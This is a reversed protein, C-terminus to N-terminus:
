KLFLIDCFNTQSTVFQFLKQLHKRSIKLEPKGEFLFDPTLLITEELLINTLWSTVDFSVVCKNTVCAMKLEEFISFTDKASHNNPIVDDLHQGPFKVLQYSYIWISSLKPSFALIFDFVKPLKPLWDMRAPRFGTPYVCKYVDKNFFVENKLKLFRQLQGEPLSTPDETLLKFKSRDNTIYNMGCIYYKVNMLVVRSGKGPGLIVIEQNNQLRKLIGHLTSVLPINYSSYSNM